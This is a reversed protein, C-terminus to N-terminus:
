CGVHECPHFTPPGLIGGVGSAEKGFPTTECAEVPLGFADMVWLTDGEPYGQMLGMVEIDGGSRAHMVM